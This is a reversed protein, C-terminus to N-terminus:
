FGKSACVPGIGAARSAADTLTRGCRGCAGIARGYAISAAEPDVAIKAVIADAAPGAPVAHLDDSAQVYVVGGKCQYFRLDGEANLVAYRGEPFPFSTPCTSHEVAWKADDAKLAFGEGEEVRAACLHCKGAYRNRVRIVKPAEAQPRVPAPAGAAELHVPVARLREIAGSAAAKTLTGSARAENLATRIAEVRPGQREALLTRIFSVQAPTAPDSKSSTQFNERANAKRTAHASTSREPTVTTTGGFGNAVVQAGSPLTEIPTGYAAAREARIEAIPRWFSAEDNDVGPIEPLPQNTM